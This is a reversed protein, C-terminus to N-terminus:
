APRQQAPQLQDMRMRENMMMVMEAAAVDCRQPKPPVTQSYQSGGTCLEGGARSSSKSRKRRTGRAWSWCRQGPVQAAPPVQERILLRFMQALVVPFQSHGLDAFSIHFRGFFSYPLAAPMAVRQPRRAKNGLLDKVRWKSRASRQQAARGTGSTSEGSVAWGPRAGQGRKM